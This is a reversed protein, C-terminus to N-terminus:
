LLPIRKLNEQIRLDLIMIIFINFVQCGVNDLRLSLLGQEIVSLQRIYNM